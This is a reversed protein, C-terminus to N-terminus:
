KQRHVLLSFSVSCSVHDSWRLYSRRARFSYARNEQRTRASVTITTGAKAASSGSVTTLLRESNMKERIRGDASGAPKPAELQAQGELAM